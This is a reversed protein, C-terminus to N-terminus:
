GVNNVVGVFIVNGDYDTIAYLFPRDLTVTLEKLGELATTARKIVATYAAAEVGKEDVAIHTEQLIADIYSAVDCMNSFDADDSSLAKTLLGNRRLLEDFYLKSNFSFKPMNLTLRYQQAFGESLITKLAGEDNLLEALSVGEDPLVLEMQGVGIIPLTVKTYGDCVAALTIEGRSMFEASSDGNAGHFPATYGASKDFEGAWSGNLYITNILVTLIPPTLELSPEITGGTNAVIWEKIRKETNADEFDVVEAAACYYEEMAALFDKSYSVKGGNFSETLWISNAISLKGTEDDLSLSEILEACYANLSEADKGGLLALMETLTDGDAGNAAMCLAYYLSLPSVNLNGSEGNLTIYAMLSAFDAYDEVKVEVKPETEGIPEAPDVILGEDDSRNVAFYYSVANDYGNDYHICVAVAYGSGGEPLLITLGEYELAEETPEGFGMRWAKAHVIEGETVLTVFGSHNTINPLDKYVSADYPAAADAMTSVTKQPDNPDAYSWSYGGVMATFAAAAEDLTYSLGLAPIEFPTEQEPEKAADGLPAGEGTCGVAAFAVTLALILAFLKKMDNEKRVPSM